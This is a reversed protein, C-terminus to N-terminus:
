TGLKFDRGEDLLESKRQEVIQRGMRLINAFGGPLVPLGVRRMIMNLRWILRDDDNYDYLVGASCFRRIFDALSDSTRTAMRNVTAAVFAADVQRLADYYLDLRKPARQILAADLLIEVLIHGLFSPRFGADEDLADRIMVTFQLSLETFVRTQHFWHDDHHHQVIGKALDAVRPEPEDVFLRARKARTRMKRDVVSLWDPVATGCLFYPRDLHAYGHAFYNM